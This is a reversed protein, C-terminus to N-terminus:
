FSKFKTIPNLFNVGTQAFVNKHINYRKALANTFLLLRQIEIDRNIFYGTAFEDGCIAWITPPKECGPGHTLRNM